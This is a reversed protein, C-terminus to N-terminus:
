DQARLGGDEGPTGRESDLAPEVHVIVDSLGPWRGRLRAEVRHGIRHAEAIPMAPDVLIHLDLHIDDDPGRSRVNHAERVGPEGLAEHEVQAPEIRREDSLTSLTGRLIGIGARVILAVIVLAAAGDAWAVGARTAAFSVLVLVSAFVDSATHAADSALLESQLRRSERRELIVVFVNVAITAGIVAFGAWTVAPLQPNRWRELTSGLIEWCGFFMMAAIGLAAFTEYKRHGYPHNADPPRRAVAVGILGIVNSSGDLLSHVGDATIAIAGSHHGYVLKAAAVALNLGLIGFLVRAIADRRDDPPLRTTVANPDAHLPM